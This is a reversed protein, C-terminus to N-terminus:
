EKLARVLHATAMLKELEPDDTVPIEPEQERNLADIYESLKEERYKNM